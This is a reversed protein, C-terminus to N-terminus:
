SRTGISILGPWGAVGSCLDTRHWGDFMQPAAGDRLLLRQQRHCLAVMVQANMVQCWALTKLLMLLEVELGTM